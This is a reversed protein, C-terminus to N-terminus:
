ARQVHRIGFRGAPREAPRRSATLRQGPHHRLEDQDGVASVSPRRRVILADRIQQGVAIVKRPRALRELRREVGGRDVFPLRPVLGPDAVRDELLHIQGAREEVQARDHAPEASDCSRPPGAPMQDAVDLGGDGARDISVEDPDDGVVADGPKRRQRDKLIRDDIVHAFPARHKLEFAVRQGREDVHRADVANGGPAHEAPGRVLPQRHRAAQQRLVLRDKALGRVREADHEPLLPADADPLSRAAGLQRRVQEAAVIPLHQLAAEADDM